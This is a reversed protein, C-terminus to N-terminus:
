CLTPAYKSIDVAVHIMYFLHHHLIQVMMKAVPGKLDQLNHPAAEMSRFQKALLDWLREVPNLDPFNPPRTLVKNKHVEFWSKRDQHEHARQQRKRRHISTLTVPVRVPRSSHLGMCLLSYESM